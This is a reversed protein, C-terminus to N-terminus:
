VDSSPIYDSWDEEFVLKEGRPRPAVQSFQRGRVEIHSASLAHDTLRDEYVGWNWAVPKKKKSFKGLLSKGAGVIAGLAADIIEISNLIARM